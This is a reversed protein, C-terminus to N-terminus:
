VQLLHLIFNYSESELGSKQLEAPNGCDEVLSLDIANYWRPSSCAVMLLKDCRGYRPLLKVFSPAASM